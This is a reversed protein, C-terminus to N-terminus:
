GLIPFFWWPLNRFRNLKSWTVTIFCQIFFSLFFLLWLVLLINWHTWLCPRNWYPLRCTKLQHHFAAWVYGSPLPNSFQSGSRRDSRSVSVKCLKLAGMETKSAAKTSVMQIERRGCIAGEEPALATADRKGCDENETSTGKWPLRSHWVFTLNAFERYGAVLCQVCVTEEEHSNGLAPSLGGQGTLEWFQKDPFYFCLM